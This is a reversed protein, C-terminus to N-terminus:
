APFGRNQRLKEGLVMACAIAVNLSRGRQPIILRGQAQDHISAPLGASERGMVLFDDPRYAFDTYPVSAKTSLVLLRATPAHHGRWAEFAQWDAHKMLDAQHIYDMAARGLHKDNWAFGCPEIIHLPVSMSAALRILTGTNQPIDPQFLVIPM